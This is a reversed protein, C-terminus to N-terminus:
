KRIRNIAALVEHQRPLAINGIKYDALWDLGDETIKKFIQAIGEVLGVTDHYYSSQYRCIIWAIAQSQGQDILQEVRDLNIKREGYNIRTIDKVDFKMDHKGRKPSLLNLNPKRTQQSDLVLEPLKEISLTKDALEHAKETVDFVRYEDLMLVLNSVGFYDGSGGMVIISSIGKNEYLSKVRQVLPTIPEKDKVVLAQMREDRIMFNSASTDEDILLLTSGSQIAEVINAAQSTSGSANETSFSTTDVGLPLHNIFDSINVRDVSRGDEARIKVASEDCVVRERGDGPLVNYVGRELANLLTSKGHFGGGVILTVGQPIGMGVNKGSNPLDIECSLNSPSNFPLASQKLPRDDIGSRRPLVANNGIFAVLNQEALSERLVAQDEVCEIHSYMFNEDHSESFLTHKVIKPLEEFLMIQAEKALIRRGAAPLGLIFRAEIDNVSVLMSSRQLVQQKNCSISILGSKGSGRNGKSLKECNIFFHRTLYDEFAIKRHPNEWCNPNFGSDTISVSVSLRSPSAFPDGQVYDISLRFKDFGWIGKISKYEGYSKRDLKQLIQQLKKM